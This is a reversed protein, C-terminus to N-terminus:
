HIAREQSQAVNNQSDNPVNETQLSEKELPEHLRYVGFEVEGDGNFDGTVPRDGSRGFLFETDTKYDRNTDLFWKGDKFLGLEDIGDSNFDGVVPLFGKEGFNSIRLDGEDWRGNGNVDLFWEGHRYVGIESIGDGNWDGTIALDGENGYEFVHDILDLRYQGNNSHRLIRYSMVIGDFTPPINKPRSVNIVTNLGVPLGPELSVAVSDQVWKPGFIGIDTKGDGDWDGYVPQDEANNGLEAWLDNPDWEGNGDRDLFWEHNSYFGIKDHGDGNWDGVVPTGDRGGFIYRSAISGDYGRILWEGYQMENQSWSVNRFQNIEPTVKARFGAVSNLADISRPYGGNLVSLHWSYPVTLGGGGFLRSTGVTPYPRSIIYNFPNLQGNIYRQPVSVPINYFSNGGGGNPKEPTLEGFNYNIGEEGVSVAIDFLEDNGATGVIRNNITGATDKGDNYGVPQTEVIRYVRNPELDDFSYHGQSDTLTSRETDVYQGSTNDLVWLALTTSPIGPEGSEKIGNDNKDEYVYGSIVANKLEGFNYDIGVGDKPLDIDIIEDNGAEGVTDGNITGATDKGDTYHEPQVAEKIFYTKKAEINTFSYYGNSNTYRFAVPESSLTGDDQVLYLEIKVGSIGAEGEEKIGNDNNDEYVYGSLSGYYKPVLEGFNYELGNNEWHVTIENLVDSEPNEGGLTGIQDKGDDWDKPQDEKIAYKQEIDLNEFCYYGNQDTIQTKGTDVYKTGDWIWLHVTENPIGSEGEERIGNDNIDNYVYGSISGLKLEGFNYNIGHQDWGVDIRIFSDNPDDDDNIKGVEGVTKGDITGVTDKGDSYDIVEGEKIAYDYNIDLKDFSYFGYENTITSEIYEYESGNWRYLCIEIDAIGCDGEDTNFQGNNLRDEYVNGSLSGLKLEGFNYDIGHEDWGVLIQVFCDNESQTEDIKGIKGVQVGNITGVTDKGDDYDSVDGELVAYNGNIDLNDFCYYGNEDTQTSRNAFVYKSGNYQYLSITINEIGKDGEDPNFFGNNLRDEYVNGSISGRKLEGFNYNVGDQDYGVYIASFIDQETSGGLSGIYDNGDSYVTGTPTIERVEYTQNVNKRQGTETYSGDIDFCYYGDERVTQTEILIKTENGNQDVDVRWLEVTWPNSSGDWNEGTEKNDKDNLDEFVYGQVSGPLVKAFNNHTSQEGGQIDDSIDIHTPDVKEAFEGGKACFDYYVKGGPSVIETQSVIHYAGPAIYEDVGFQYFGFEDTKTTWTQSGDESILTIEVGAIPEDEDNEDYNCDVDHDAYVYGSIVISKPTLEGDQYLGATMIGYNGLDTDNPLQEETYANNLAESKIYEDDYQDVFLGKLSYDQYYTSTFVAEITSGSIAKLVSGGFEGGEVIANNNEQDTDPNVDMSYEDVDIAFIFSDGAHFNEFTIVLSIGGDEVQVNYEIDATKEVLTFPYSSYVGRGDEATDFFAEGPDLQGNDNKDLNITLQSMTTTSEGGVWAIYFKDGLDEEVQEVYVAGVSIPDAALLERKELEEVRCRRLFPSKKNLHKKPRSRKRSTKTSTANLIMAQKETLLSM